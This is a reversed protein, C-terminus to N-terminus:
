RTAMTVANCHPQIPAALVAHQREGQDVGVGIVQVEAVVNELGGLVAQDAIQQQAAAHGRGIVEDCGRRGRALFQERHVVRGPDVPELGAPQGVVLNQAEFHGVRAGHDLRGKQGGASREGGGARGQEAAGREIDSAAKVVGEGIM